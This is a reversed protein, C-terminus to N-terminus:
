RTKWNKQEILEDLKGRLENIDKVLEKVEKEAGTLNVRRWM